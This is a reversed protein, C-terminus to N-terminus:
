PFAKASATLYIDDKSSRGPDPHGLQSIETRAYDALKAVNSRPIQNTWPMNLEEVIDPYRRFRNRVIEETAHMELAPFITQSGQLAWQPYLHDPLDLDFDDPSWTYGRQRAQKLLKVKEGINPELIHIAVYAGARTAECAYEITRQVSNHTEGHAGFLLSVRPIVKKELCALVFDRSTQVSVKGGKRINKLMQNDAVEIGALLSRCGTKYMLEVLTDDVEDARAFASWYLGSEGLSECSALFEERGKKHALASYDPDSLRVQTISPFIQKLIELDRRLEKSSKRAFRAKEDVCFNCTYPCGQSSSVMLWQPNLGAEKYLKYGEVTGFDSVMERLGQKSHIPNVNIRGDKHYSIGSIEELKRKREIVKVIDGVHFTGQQSISAIDVFNYTELPLTPRGQEALTRFHYGGVIVTQNPNEEKIKRLIRSLREASDTWTTAVVLNAARAREVTHDIFRSELDHYEDWSIPKKRNEKDIFASVAIDNGTKLLEGAILPGALRTGEKPAVYAPDILLINLTM